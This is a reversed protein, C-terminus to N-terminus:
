KIGSPASRLPEINPLETSGNRLSDVDFKPAYLKQLEGLAELEISKKKILFDLSGPNNSGITDEFSPTFNSKTKLFDELDDPDKTLVGDTTVLVGGKSSDITHMYGGSTILVGGSGFKIPKVSGGASIVAMTGVKWGGVDEVPKLISECYKIASEINAKKKESLSDESILYAFLYKVTDLCNDNAYAREGMNKLDDKSLSTSYATSTLFLVILIVLYKSM